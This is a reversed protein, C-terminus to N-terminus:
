PEHQTMAVYAARGVSEIAGAYQDQASWLRGRLLQVTALRWRADALHIQDGSSKPFDRVLQESHGISQRLSAEAEVTSKTLGGLQTLATVLQRRNYPRTPFDKVVKDLLAVGKRVLEAADDPRSGAIVMALNTYSRAMYREFSPDKAKPQHHRLRIRLAERLLREPEDREGKEWLLAALGEYCLSLEIQFRRSDPESALAAQEMQISRRFHGEAEEAKEEPTLVTILNNLTNVLNVHYGSSAPLEGFLQEDLKLAARYKARAPTPKGMDRLVHGFQRRCEALERRYRTDKDFEVVLVELLKEQRGRAEVTKEWRGLSHSIWAVWAWAEATKLRVRPDNSREPLVDLHYALAEELLKEGTKELGPEERFLRDGLSTLREVLKNARKLSKEAHEREDVAADREIKWRLALQDAREANAAAEQWQWVIGALGGVFVLALAALLGAVVPKRRCWRWSRGFMGIPRAHIPEGHRYRELDAALEAASRYRKGPEKELCKLCITELDRPL